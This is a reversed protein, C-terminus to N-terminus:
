AGCDSAGEWMTFTCDLDPLTDIGISATLLKSCVSDTMNSSGVLFQGCESGQYYSAGITAPAASTDLPLFPVYPAAHTLTLSSISLALLTQLLM